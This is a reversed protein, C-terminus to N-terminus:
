RFTLPRRSRAIPGVEVKCAKSGPLQTPITANAYGRAAVKSTIGNHTHKEDGAKRKIAAPVPIAEENTVRFKRSIYIKWRGNFFLITGLALKVITLFTQKLM